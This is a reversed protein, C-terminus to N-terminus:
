GEVATGATRTVALSSALVGVSLISAESLGGGGSARSTEFVEVLNRGVVLVKSLTISAVAEILAVVLSEGISESRSAAILACCSESVGSIGVTILSAVGLRSVTLLLGALEGILGVIVVSRAEVSTRLLLSVVSLVVVVAVITGKTVVSVIGITAVFIGREGVVTIILSVGVAISSIGARVLAISVLGIASRLVGAIGLGVAGRARTTGIGSGGTLM